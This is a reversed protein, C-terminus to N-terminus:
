TWCARIFPSLEDWFTIITESSPLHTPRHLYKQLTDINFISVDNRNTATYAKVLSSQSANLANQSVMSDCAAAINDALKSKDTLSNATRFHLESLEILARILFAVTLPCDRIDKIQSIEFLVGKAKLNNSSISPAPSATTFLKKRDWAPKSPPRGAPPQTSTTTLTPVLNSTSPTANVQYIGNSQSSSPQRVDTSPVNAPSSLPWGADLRVKTLYVVAQEPSFVDNVKVKGAGFDDIVRRAMKIAVQESAILVLVDNQIDFGLIKINENSFFRSVTTIPFDDGVEIQRVESWLLYQGARKYEAAQANNLLYITRLYSSWGIQGIGGLEGSHRLVLEHAIAEANDSALCDIKSPVKVNKTALIKLIKERISASTCLAPNNLLKLATIRRNGDKVVWKGSIDSSTILVQATSLGETAISEMLKLMQDEKRLVKEICDNQNSGARIRPNKEDLLIDDISLSKQLAFDERGM